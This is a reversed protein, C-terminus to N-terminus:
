IYEIFSNWTAGQLIFPQGASGIPVVSLRARDTPNIVFAFETELGLEEQTRRAKKNPTFVMGLESKKAARAKVEKFEAEDEFQVVKIATLIRNWDAVEHRERMLSEYQSINLKTIPLSPERYAAFKTAKTAPAMIHLVVENVPFKEREHKAVDCLHSKNLFIRDRGILGCCYDRENQPSLLVLSVFLNM